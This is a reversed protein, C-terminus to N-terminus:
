KVEVFEATDMEADLLVIKNECKYYHAGPNLIRTKGIKEDSAKHVHGTLIYDYKQSNIMGELRQRDTGHYVGILKGKHEIEAMEGLYEGDISEIKKKLGEIEGDCNGRVVKVKLGALFTITLPCIVDGCHVVFEVNEKKFREAAKIVNPVNDHTDSIIGIMKYKGLGNRISISL